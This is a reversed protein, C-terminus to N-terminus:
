SAMAAIGGIVGFVGALMGGAGFLFDAVSAIVILLGWTHRHCPKACLLIAGAAMLLGVSVSFYLWLSPRFINEVSMWSGFAGQTSMGDMALTWIGALLSLVFATTCMDDDHRVITRAM